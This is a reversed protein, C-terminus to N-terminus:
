RTVTVSIAGLETAGKGSATQAGGDWKIPVRVVERGGLERAAEIAIVYDGAALNKLAPNDARFTVTHRGPARTAGTIGDAPLTMSRGIKRWWTRMENLWNLGENNRLKVDYWVSLTSVATQDPKEIWISVYPAHYEASQLRPVEVEVTLDGAFAPAGVFTAAAAVVPLATKM